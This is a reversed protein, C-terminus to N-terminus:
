LDDKKDVQPVSRATAHKELFATFGELTRDGNFDMPTRKNNAPWFKITPFGQISVEEVENATSDM